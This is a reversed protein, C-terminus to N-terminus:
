NIEQIQIETKSVSHNWKAASIRFVQSDDKFFIGNMSDLVLKVLNDLDPKKIHYSLERHKKPLSKIYEFSFVIDVVVPGEFPQPPAYRNAALKFAKEAEKTAKPTYAIGTKTFRPRGKAVPKGIVTFQILARDEPEKIRGIEYCAM